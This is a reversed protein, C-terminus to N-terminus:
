KQYPRLREFDIPNNVFWQKAKQINRHFMEELADPPHFNLLERSNYNNERVDAFWIQTGNSACLFPVKFSNWEGIINKCGRSYRKAQELVNQPNVSVKKAEIIGLLKGKVFLAYDPPGNDTTFEEVAHHTLLRIDLDEKYPIVEWAPNLAKLQADIRTKRTKWESETPM